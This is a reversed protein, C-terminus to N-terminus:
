PGTVKDWIASAVAITGLIAGAAVAPPGPNSSDKNTSVPITSLIDSRCKEPFYLTSSPAGPENKQVQTKPNVNEGHPIGHRHSQPAVVAFTMQMKNGETAVPPQRQQLRHARPINKNFLQPFQAVLSPKM